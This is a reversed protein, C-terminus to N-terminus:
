LHGVRAGSRGAYALAGFVYDAGSRFALVHAAGGEFWIAAAVQALRTRRVCGEPMAEPRMDAPTLKALTERLLAEEGTLKFAARADSVVAVLAHTGSLAETLRACLAPAEDYPCLLLLEDPSMWLVARAGDRTLSLPAPVALGEGALATKLAAAGLDCRLSIMGQPGQGEVLVEGEARAGDRAIDSM